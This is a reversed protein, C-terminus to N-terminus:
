LNQPKKALLTVVPVFLMKERITFIINSNANDNGNVSLAIIRRSLNLEVKRNILLMELSGLFNSVYKLPVAVTTKRFIANIEDGETNGM